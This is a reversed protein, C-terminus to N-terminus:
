VFNLGNADNEFGSFFWRFHAAVSIEPLEGPPVSADLFAPMM